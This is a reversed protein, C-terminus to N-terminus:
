FKGPSCVSPDDKCMPSIMHPYMSRIFATQDNVPVRVFNRLAAKQDVFPYLKDAQEQTAPVGEYKLPNGLPPNAVPNTNPQPPEPMPYDYTSKKETMLLVSACILGIYMITTERTLLYLLVSSYLILRINSNTKETDTMDSTPSVSYMSKKSFIQNLRADM